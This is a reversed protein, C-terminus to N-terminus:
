EDRFLNKIARFCVNKDYFAVQCSIQHESFSRRFWFRRTGYTHDLFSKNASPKRLTSYIPIEHFQIHTIFIVCTMEKWLYELASLPDWMQHFYAWSGKRFSQRDSRSTAWLALIHRVVRKKGNKCFIEWTFRLSPNESSYWKHEKKM